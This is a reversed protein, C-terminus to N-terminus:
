SGVAFTEVDEIDGFVEFNMVGANYWSAAIGVHSLACARRVPEGREIESERRGPDEIRRM